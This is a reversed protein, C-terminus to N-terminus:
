IRRSSLTFVALESCRRMSLDLSSSLGIPRRSKSSIFEHPYYLDAYLPIRDIQKFKVTEMTIQAEGRIASQPERTPECTLAVILRIQSSEDTDGRSWGVDGFGADQLSRKWFAEDAIAHTRSDEFRWWGDLLGFVLDFWYLSRTLEVLCLM